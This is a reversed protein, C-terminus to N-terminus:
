ASTRVSEDVVRNGFALVGGDAAQQDQSSDGGSVGVAGVLVGNRELPMGGVFIITRAGAGTHYGFFETGPQTIPALNSTPMRNVGPPGAIGDARTV